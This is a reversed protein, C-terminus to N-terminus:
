WLWKIFKRIVGVQNKQIVQRPEKVKEVLKKEIKPQNFLTSIYAKEKIKNKYNENYIHQFKRYKTILHKNVEINENWYYIGDVRKIINENLLFAGWTRSIEKSYIIKSLGSLENKIMENKIENLSKIWHNTTDVYTRKRM